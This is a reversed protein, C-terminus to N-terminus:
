ACTSYLNTALYPETQSSTALLGSDHNNARVSSKLGSLPVNGETGQAVHVVASTIM